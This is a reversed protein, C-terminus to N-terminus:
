PEVFHLRLTYTGDPVPLQYALENGAGYNAYDYTQYVAQPAPNSVGSTDM